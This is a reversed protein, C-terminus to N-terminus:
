TTRETSARRASAAVRPRLWGARTLSFAPSRTPSRTLSRATSRVRRLASARSLRRASPLRRRVVGVRQGDRRWDAAARRHAEDVPAPSGHALNLNVGDARFDSGSASLVRDDPTAAPTSCVSRIRMHEAESVLRYKTGMAHAGSAADGNTARADKEARWNCFAAAEHANVEAPWAWPMPVLDYVTRLRYQHLNSPGCSSWFTPWKANRFTRWGWGDASWHRQERYGGDRVFQLFEGNSIKYQSARFAPVDRTAAGYENDWGYSPVERPKGLSVKGAPVRVLANLPYDVGATPSFVDSKPVSPHNAVWGDPRVVLPQPLERILVSSTELHIREHEFCMALAWLPRKEPLSEQHDLLGAHTEIVGRVTEYVKRRYATVEAVTPWQTASQSLDDWTMEDVGTEFLAEFYPDIPKDILGALRLKNIYLTAVHGYYFILPHRLQHYPQMCFTAEGQISAFLQETLTWTNDFYAMVDERTCSEDLKLLPLSTLHGGGESAVWGAVEHPAKGTWWEATRPGYLSADGLPRDALDRAAALGLVDLNPNRTLQLEPAKLQVDPFHSAEVSALFSHAPQTSRLRTAAASRLALATRGAAKPAAPFTAPRVHRTALRFM